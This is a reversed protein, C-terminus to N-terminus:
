LRSRQGLSRSVHDTRRERVSPIQTLKPYFGNQPKVVIGPRRQTIKALINTIAFLVIFSHTSKLTGSSMM